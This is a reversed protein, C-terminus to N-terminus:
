FNIEPMDGNFRQASGSIKETNQDWKIINQNRCPGSVRTEGMNRRLDREKPLALVM